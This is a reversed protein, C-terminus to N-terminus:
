RSIIADILDITPRFGKFVSPDSIQQVTESFTNKRDDNVKFPRLTSEDTYDSGDEPSTPKYLTQFDRYDRKVLMSHADLFDKSYLFEIPCYEKLGGPAVLTMVFSKGECQEATVKKINLLETESVNISKIARNGAEDCDFLAILRKKDPFLKAPISKIFSALTTADHMDIIEVDLNYSLVEIAKKLHCVDTKGEVFLVNEKDSDIAMSFQKIAKDFSFIGQSLVSVAEEATTSRVSRNGHEDKEMVFLSEEPAFAVTSPSHTTIIIRIGSGGESQPRSIEYLIDVMMKSMSPHLHADPEDLLMTNIRNGRIDKGMAWIIFKVIMQEGSSLSDYHVIEGNKGSFLIDGRRSKDAPFPDLMTFYDFGYKRFLRNIVQFSREADRVAAIESERKEKSLLIYKENREKEEQKVFREYDQVETLTNFYPNAYERIESDTLNIPIKGLIVSIRELEVDYAYEHLKKNENIINQANHKSSELEHLIRRREVEDRAFQLNRKKQRADDEYIRLINLNSKEMAQNDLLKNKYKILGEISLDPAISSSLIIHANEESGSYLTNFVPNLQNSLMNLLQTKGVGNVGTLVAFSPIANWEFGSQIAMYRENVKIDIMSM